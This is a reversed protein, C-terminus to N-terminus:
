GVPSVQEFCKGTQLATDIQESGVSRGDLEALALDAAPGPSQSGPRTGKATAPPAAEERLLGFGADLCNSLRNVANVKTCSLDRRCLLHQCAFITGM